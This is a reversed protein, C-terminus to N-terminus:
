KPPHHKATLGGPPSPQMYRAEVKRGIWVTAAIFALLGALLWPQDVFRRWDHGIYSFLLVNIGKGLMIASLFTRLRLRVLGSVINIVVFPGLPFLSLVLVYSFGNRRVWHLSRSVKPKHAWRELYPHGAIRRVILFTVVCGSVLGLWSYLFGLWLGYVAANVGILIITPMPPVFAKLFTLLIGPLPGWARFQELLELLNEETLSSLWDTM